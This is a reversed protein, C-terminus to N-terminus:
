HLCILSWSYCVERVACASDSEDKAIKGRPFGWGSSPQWGKVLLVKEMAPDLVIAGMVPVTQKFANFEAYISNLM